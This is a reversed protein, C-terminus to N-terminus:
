WARGEALAVIEVTAGAPTALQDGVNLGHASLIALGTWSGGEGVGSRIEGLKRDERRLEAGATFGGEATARVVFLRRRVKGMSHLRAMVEQGLYCGKNFSVAEVELGGEQPLDAPGLDIPISPVGDAIRWREFVSPEAETAALAPAAETASFLVHWCERRGAARGRFALAGAATVSFNGPEPAPCGPEAVLKRAAPGAVTLLRSGATRDAVSVDDAIIFRELREAIVAAPSSVSVIEFEEEGRRLVFSDALVRGKNNLWLGYTSAGAGRRLDHSFQGQLFSPADPGSVVLRAAPESWFFQTAEM